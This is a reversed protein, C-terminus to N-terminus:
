HIRPAIRESALQSPAWIMNDPDISRCGHIKLLPAIEPSLRAVASGDIGVGIHGLLMQGATEILTDVNTTVATQIGRVLLLDAVAYHGDNPPGAFVNQDILTRFYVTDLEARQFFFEAQEAIDAPLPDRTVGHIADYRGKAAAALDAASPLWSPPGMSLGAGALLALRDNLLFDLASAVADDFPIERMLRLAPRAVM